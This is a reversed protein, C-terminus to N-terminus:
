SRGDGFDRMPARFTGKQCINIPYVGWRGLQTLTSTNILVWPLCRHSFHACDAQVQCLVNKLNVSGIGGSRDQEALLQPPV